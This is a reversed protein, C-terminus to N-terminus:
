LCRAAADMSRELENMMALTANFSREIEMAQALLYCLLLKCNLVPCVINWPMRIKM